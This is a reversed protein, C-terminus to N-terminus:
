RWGMRAGGNAHARPVAEKAMGYPGMGVLGSVGALSGFNIVRGQESAKLHPYAAQM